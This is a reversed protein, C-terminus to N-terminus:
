CCPLLLLFLLLRLREMQLLRVEVEPLINTNKKKQQQLGTSHQVGSSSNRNFFSLLTNKYQQIQDDNRKNNTINMKKKKKKSPSESPSRAVVSDIDCIVGSLLCCHHRHATEEEEEEGDTATNNNTGTYPSVKNYTAAKFTITTGATALHQKIKKKKTHKKNSRGGGETGASGSGVVATQQQRQHKNQAQLLAASRPQTSLQAAQQYPGYLLTGTPQLAHYRNFYQTSSSSSSGGRPEDDDDDDEDLAPPPSADFNMFGVDEQLYDFACRFVATNSNYYHNYISHNSAFPSSSAASVPGGTGGNGHGGGGGRSSAWGRSGGNNQNENENPKHKSGDKSKDKGDGGCGGGGSYDPHALVNHENYYIAQGVVRPTDPWLGDIVATSLLINLLMAIPNKTTGNKEDTQTSSSSNSTSSSVQLLDAVAKSVTTPWCYYSINQSFNFKGNSSSRRANNKNKSALSKAPFGNSYYTNNSKNSKWSTTRASTTNPSFLFLLSQLTAIAITAIPSSLPSTSVFSFHHPCSFLNHTHHHHHMNDESKKGEKTASSTDSQHHYFSSPVITDLRLPVPTKGLAVQILASVTASSSSSSSPSLFSSSDQEKKTKMKKSSVVDSSSSRNLSTSFRGFVNEDVVWPRSRMSLHRLLHLSSEGTYNAATTDLTMGGSPHSRYFNPTFSSCWDLDFYDTFEGEKQSGEEAITDDSDDDDDDSDYGFVNSHSNYDDYDEFILGVGNSHNCHRLFRWWAFSPIRLLSQSVLVSSSSFDVDDEDGDDKKEDTNNNSGGVTNGGNKKTIIVDGGYGGYHDFKDDDDDDSDGDGLLLAGGGTLIASRLSMGGGGGGSSSSNSNSTNNINSAVMGDKEDEELDAENGGDVVVFETVVVTNKDVVRKQSKKKKTANKKKKQQETEPDLCWWNPRMMANTNTNVSSSSNQKEKKSDDANSGENENKNNEKDDVQGGQQHYLSLASIICRELQRTIMQTHLTTHQEVSHQQLSISPMTNKKKQKASDETEKAYDCREESVGNSKNATAVAPRSPSPVYSAFPSSSKSVLLTLSVSSSVSNPNVDAQQQQQQKEKEKEKENGEESKETAAKEEGPSTTTGSVAAAPVSVYNNHQITPALSMMSRVSTLRDGFFQKYSAPAVASSSLVVLFFKSLLSAVLADKSHSHNSGGRVDSTEPEDSDSHYHHHHRKFNVFVSGRANQDDVINFVFSYQSQPPSDSNSAQQQSGVRGGSGKFYVRLSHVIIWLLTLRDTVLHNNNKNENENEDITQQEVEQLRLFVEQEQRQRRVHGTVDLVDDIYRGSLSSASAVSSENEKPTTSSKSTSQSQSSTESYSSPVVVPVPLGLLASHLLLGVTSHLHCLYRYDDGAPFLASSSSSLSQTSTTASSIGSAGGSTEGRGFLMLPLTDNKKKEKQQQKGAGAKESALLCVNRPLPVSQLVSSLLGVLLHLHRRVAGELLQMNTLLVLVHSHKYSSNSKSSSNSSAKNISLQLLQSYFQAAQTVDTFASTTSTTKDTASDGATPTSPKAKKQERQKKANNMNNNSFLYQHLPSMETAMTTSEEHADHSEADVMQQQQDEQDEAKESQHDAALLVAEVVIRRYLPSMILFGVCGKVEEELCQLCEQLLARTALVDISNLLSNNTTTTSTDANSSNKNNSNANRPNEHSEPQTHTAHTTHQCLSKVCNLLICQFTGWCHRTTAQQLLRQMQLVSPHVTHANADLNDVDDDDDVDSAADDNNREQTQNTSSSLYQQLSVGDESPQKESSPPCSRTTTTIVDQLLSSPTVAATNNNNNNNNNNSTTGAAASPTRPLVRSTTVSAASMKSLVRCVVDAEKNGQLDSYKKTTTTTDTKRAHTKKGTQVLAFPDQDDTHDGISNSGEGSSSSSSFPLSSSFPKLVALTHKHRLVTHTNTTTTQQKAM